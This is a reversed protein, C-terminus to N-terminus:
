IEKPIKFTFTSGQGLESEVGITGNHAEAIMKIYSLGLGMGQIDDNNKSRYFKDFIYKKDFASIGYGNDAVILSFFNDDITYSIKIDVSDYSYKIANEILNQLINELHLKDGNVSLVEDNTIEINVSKESPSYIRSVVENMFEPIIINTKNLPINGRESMTIDRLKTFYNTINNLEISSNQLVEYRFEKNAILQDNRLSSVCMKLASIPRKLEHIMTHSFDQRIKETKRQHNITYIQIYFSYIIFIAVLISFILILGMKAIVEPLPLAFKVQVYEGELNDYPVNVTINTSFFAIDREYSTEWLMSDAKNTSIEAKINQTRLLSDLTTISFPLVEDASFLHPADYLKDQMISDHVEFTYTSEALVDLEKYSDINTLVTTDIGEYVDTRFLAIDIITIVNQTDFTYFSRWLIKNEREIEIKRINYEEKVALEVKYKADKALKEISIDYQTYIWISQTVLLLLIAIATVTYIINLRKKM